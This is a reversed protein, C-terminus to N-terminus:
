YNENTPDFTICKYYMFYQESCNFHIINNNIFCEMNCKYFNSFVGYEGKVGYFYIGKEM